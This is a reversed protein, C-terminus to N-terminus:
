KRKVDIRAMRDSAVLTREPRLTRPIIGLQGCVHYGRGRLQVEERNLDSTVDAEDLAPATTFRGRREFPDARSAGGAGWIRDENVPTCPFSWPRERSASRRRGGAAATIAIIM